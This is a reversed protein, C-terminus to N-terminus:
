EEMYDSDSDSDNREWGERRHGEIMPGRTELIEYFPHRWAVDMLTCVWATFSPSESPLPVDIKFFDQFHSKQCPNRIKREQLLLKENLYDHWEIDRPDIVSPVPSKTHRATKIALRVRSIPIRTDRTGLSIQCKKNSVKKTTPIQCLLSLYTWILTLNVVIDHWINRLWVLSM